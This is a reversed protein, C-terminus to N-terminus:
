DDRDRSTLFNDVVFDAVDDGLRRGSTLDFLFHVGAFIRSLTAEEAAAPFSKFSREKGPMVESTVSFEFHDKRFFSTLVEAGAAAEALEATHRVGLGTLAAKAEARRAYVVLDHGAAALREVMPLGMRGAGVFGVRSSGM